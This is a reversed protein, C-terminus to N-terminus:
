HANLKEILLERNEVPQLQRVAVTCRDRQECGGQKLELTDVV